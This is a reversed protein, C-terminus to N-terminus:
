GRPPPATGGDCKGTAQACCDRTLCLLPSPSLQRFGCGQKSNHMNEFQITKVNGDDAANWSVNRVPSDDPLRALSTAKVEGFWNVVSVVCFVSGGPCVVITYTLAIFSCM